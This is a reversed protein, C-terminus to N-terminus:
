RRADAQLKIVMEEHTTTQRGDRILNRNRRRVWFGVSRRIKGSSFETAFVVDRQDKSVRM